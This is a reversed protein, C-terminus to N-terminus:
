DDKSGENKAGQWGTVSVTATSGRDAQAINSGQAIQVHHIGDPLGKIQELLATAADVLEADAPAGAASLEEAVVQQRGDSDPKGELKDVAAVADSGAGFKKRLLAKLGEFSDAIAKKAVETTASSAGASLAAIIAATVPDM